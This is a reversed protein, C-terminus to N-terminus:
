KLKRNFIGENLLLLEYYLKVNILKNNGWKHRQKM